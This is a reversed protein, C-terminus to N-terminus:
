GLRPRRPEDGLGLDRRLHMNTPVAATRRSRFPMLLRQVWNSRPQPPSLYLEFDEIM